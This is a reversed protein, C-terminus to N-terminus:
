AVHGSTLATGPSRLWRDLSQGDVFEQVIYYGGRVQGVHHTKVIGPHDLAAASRAERRFRTVAEDTSWFASSLMKLAVIRDLAIERAKYVVGMGGRGLEGIIQFGEIRPQESTGADRRGLRARRAQSEPNNPETERRSLRDNESM